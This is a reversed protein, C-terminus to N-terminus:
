YPRRGFFAAFVTGVSKAVDIVTENKAGEIAHAGWWLERGDKSRVLTVEMGAVARDKNWTIVGFGTIAAHAERQAGYGLIRALLVGDVKGAQGLAQLFPTTAVGTNTYNGSFSRYLDTLKLAQILQRSEEPGKIEIEPHKQHMAGIFNQALVDSGESYDLENSFPLFVVASLPTSGFSADVRANLIVDRDKPGLKRNQAGVLAVCTALAAAIFAARKTM